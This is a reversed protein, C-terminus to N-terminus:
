WRRSWYSASALFTMREYCRRNRAANSRNFGVSGGSAM